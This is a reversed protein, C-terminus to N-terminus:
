VAWERVAGSDLVLLDGDVNRAFAVLHGHLSLSQHAASCISSAPQRPRDVAAELANSPKILPHCRIAASSLTAYDQLPVAVDRWLLLTQASLDCFDAIASHLLPLPFLVM